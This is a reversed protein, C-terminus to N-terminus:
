RPELLRQELRRAERERAQVPADPHYRLPVGARRSLARAARDRAWATTPSPMFDREDARGAWTDIRLVELLFPIPEDRGLSLAAGACEVRVELDPHARPGVGLDVLRQALDAARPLRLLAAVAVVDGADAERTPTDVREELRALLLAAAQSSGTRGLVVAARVASADGGALARRLDALAAPSPQVRAGPGLEAELWEEFRSPASSEWDAPPSWTGQASTTALRPPTSAATVPAAPTTGRCAALGALALLAATRMAGDYGAPLTPEIPLFARPAHM